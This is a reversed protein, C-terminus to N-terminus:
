TVLSFMSYVWPARSPARRHGSHSPCGFLLASICLYIYIRSESQQATSRVLSQLAGTMSQQMVETMDLETIGHVTARWAGGGPIKWALIRSHTAM